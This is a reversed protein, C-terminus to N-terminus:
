PEWAERNQSDQLAMSLQLHPTQSPGDDRSTQRDWGEVFELTDLSKYEQIAPVTLPASILDWTLSNSPQQVLQHESSQRGTNDESFMPEKVDRDPSM